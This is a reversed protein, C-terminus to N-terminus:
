HADSNGPSNTLVYITTGWRWLEQNLLDTAPKLVQMERLEWTINPSSIWPGDM